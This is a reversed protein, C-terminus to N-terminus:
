IKQFFKLLENSVNIRDFHEEAVKRGNLGINKCVYRNHICYLMADALSFENGPKVFITNEMHTLYHPVDGVPTCIVPKGSALFGGLKFPFGANAFNSNIRTMCMIDCNNLMQYYQRESLYGLYKIKKKSSSNALLHLLRKIHREAGTGTLILRVNNDQTVVIEFAKLLLEIGDKYGFSGGYFFSTFEDNKESTSIKNFHSFDTSIPILSVPFKNQSLQICKKELHMSIAICGNAFFGIMEFMIIASKTKLKSKLSKFDSRFQFDEVIDFIIKYGIAKAFLIFVFNEVNPYNYVYMINKALKKRKKRIFVSGKIFFAIISLLNFLDYGIVQYVVNNKIGKEAKPFLKKNFPFILNSFYLNPKDVLPEILNRLRTTSAMIGIYEVGIILIHIKKNEVLV